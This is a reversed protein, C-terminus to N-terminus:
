NKDNSIEEINKLISPVHWKSKVVIHGFMRAALISQSKKGISEFLYAVDSSEPEIYELKRVAKKRERIYARWEALLAQRSAQTKIDKGAAKIHKGFCADSCFILDCSKKRASSKTRVGEARSLPKNCYSCNM